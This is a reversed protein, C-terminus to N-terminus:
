TNLNYDNDNNAKSITFALTGADLTFADVVGDSENEVVNMWRERVGEGGGQGQRRAAVVSVKPGDRRARGERLIRRGHHFRVIAFAEEVVDLGEALLDPRVLFETVDFVLVVVLDDGQGFLVVDEGHGHRDLVAAAAGVGDGIQAGQHADAALAGADAGEEGAVGGDALVGDEGVAALLLFATVEGGGRIALLDEGEAQGFGVGAAVRQLHGARILLAAIV